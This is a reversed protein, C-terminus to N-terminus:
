KDDIMTECTSAKIKTYKETPLLLLVTCHLVTRVSPHRTRRRLARDIDIREQTHTLVFNLSSHAAALAAFAEVYLSVFTCACCADSGLRTTFNGDSSRLSGWIQDADTPMISACRKCPTGAISAMVGQSSALELM